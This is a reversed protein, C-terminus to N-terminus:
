DISAVGWGFVESPKMWNLTQRPRNNFERAVANLHAASHLSMDAQTPIYQRLLGNTNENTGRQWLSRTTPGSGPLRGPGVTGEVLCATQVCRRGKRRAPIATGSGAVAGLNAEVCSVTARVGWPWTGTVAPPKAWNAWIAWNAQRDGRPPTTEGGSPASVALVSAFGNLQCAQIGIRLILSGRRM